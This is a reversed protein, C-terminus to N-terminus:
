GLSGSLILVALSYGCTLGSAKCAGAEPVMFPVGAAGGEGECGWLGVPAVEARGPVADAEWRLRSAMLPWLAPGTSEGGAM